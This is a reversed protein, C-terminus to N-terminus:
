IRSPTAKLRGDILRQGFAIGHTEAEQETAYLVESSFDRPTMAGHHKFSIVICLQWKEREALYRPSPQIAYGEYLVTKSM